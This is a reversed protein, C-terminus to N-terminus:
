QNKVTRRVPSRKAFGLEDLQVLLEAIDTFLAQPQRRDAIVAHRRELVKRVLLMNSEWEKRIGVRFDNASKPNQVFGNRRVGHGRADRTPVRLISQSHFTAEEAFTALSL